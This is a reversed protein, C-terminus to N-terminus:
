KRVEDLGYREVLHCALKGIPADWEEYSKPISINGRYTFLEKGTSALASPMFSLEIFPKMGISLLFDFISDILTFNYRLVGGRDKLCVSMSDDLIGHFRVYRFGLENRCQRLQRRYDERLATPGHCSGVCTEWYHPFPLRPGAADIRFEPM